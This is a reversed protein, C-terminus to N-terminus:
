MMSRWCVISSRFSARDAVQRVDALPVAGHEEDPRLLLALVGDLLVGPADRHRVHVMAPQAAQERVVARDLLADPDQVLQAPLLGLALELEQGRLLALRREGLELLELRVQAAHGVGALQGVRDDHDVHLLLREGYALRAAQVDRHDAEDVRVAVGVVGVEDDGSVVVGDPRGREDHAHQGVADGVASVAADLHRVEHRLVAVRSRSPASPALGRRLRRRGGGLSGRRRPPRPRPRAGAAASAGAASSAVALSASPHTVHRVAGVAASTLCSRSAVWAPM